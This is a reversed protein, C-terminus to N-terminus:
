EHGNKVAIVRMNDLLNVPLAFRSLTSFARPKFGAIRALQFLLLSLPVLKAPRSLEVIRFGARRLLSTLTARSFFFAHQPPTMLRWTSRMLRSLVSDWDGTTIVIHGGPKLQEYVLSLVLAPDPLHEIVDLMVVADLPPRGSITARDAVGCQVDLNRSQCFAVASECVEIGSVNFSSQAESLFFGYACGIELLNGTTCDSRRLAKLINHFEKRLVSETAVYDAYGDRQKGDFYSEEYIAALDEDSAV